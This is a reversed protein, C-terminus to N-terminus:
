KKTDNLNWDYAYASIGSVNKLKAKLEPAAYKRLHALVGSENGGFDEQFWSYISSATVKTGNITVGRPHNIYARANADLLTELNAATFAETELNPCGISACNVSYHVRPDQFIPRLIKHEIDNLSLKQGAVTLVATDWPGGAGVSQKLASFLGSELSINKISKVPYHDLIIDITKANYLNAWFAFQQKRTLESPKTGELHKIYAKLAKHDTSKFKAYNVLNLGQPDAVVYKGLLKTWASHDVTTTLESAHSKFIQALNAAKAPQPAMLTAAILSVAACLVNIPDKYQLLASKTTM